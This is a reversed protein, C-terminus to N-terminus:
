RRAFRVAITASAASLLAMALLGAAIVLGGAVGIHLEVKQDSVPAVPPEMLPNGAPRYIEGKMLGPETLPEIPEGGAEPGTVSIASVMGAHYLCEYAYTGPRNFRASFSETVDGSNLSEFTVTHIAGGKMDWRVVEGTNIELDRPVFCNDIILVQGRETAPLPDPCYAGGGGAGAPSPMLVFGMVASAAIARALRRSM